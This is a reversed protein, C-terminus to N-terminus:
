KWPGELPAAPSAISRFGTLRVRDSHPSSLLAMLGRDHIAEVARECLYVEACPKMRAEGDERYVHVPLGEMSLVAGPRMQWGMASYAMGLLYAAAFAGNGWLYDEHRPAGDFEEFPFEDCIEGEKGYPMRLLFRPVILGVHRAEPLSRILDWGQREMEGNWDEPYPSESLSHCGLLEPAAGALFAVRAQKAVMGARGILNLDEMSASFEYNGAVVAWRRETLIRFLDTRRLDEADGLNALLEAKSLHLVHITFGPGTDLDFVLRHLARWASEIQQFRPHHLLARMNAIAGSNDAQAQHRVLHPEVLSRVYKAFPDNSVPPEAGSARAETAELAADLISGGLAAEVGSEAPKPAPKVAPKTEAPRAPAAPLRLRLADPHFDSMSLFRLDLGAISARVDLAELVDDFNDRDIEIPKLPARAGFDGIVLIRFPTDSDLELDIPDLAPIAGGADVDLHVDAYSSRPM